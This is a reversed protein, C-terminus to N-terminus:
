FKENWVLADKDPLAAESEDWSDDLEVSHSPKTMCLMGDEAEMGSSGATQQLFHYTCPAGIQCKVFIGGVYCYINLLSNIPM